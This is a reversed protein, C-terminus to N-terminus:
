KPITVMGTCVVVSDQWTVPFNLTKSKLRATTTGYVFVNKRHIRNSPPNVVRLHFGRPNSKSCLQCDVKGGARQSIAAILEQLLQQQQQENMEDRRKRHFSDAWDRSGEGSDGSAYIM